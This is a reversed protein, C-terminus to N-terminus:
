EKSRSALSTKARPVRVVLDPRDRSGSDGTVWEGKVIKGAFDTGEDDAGNEFVSYLLYGDGRREYLFPNGSYLDMPISDLYEALLAALEEPYQNHTARYAALAAAVRAERM